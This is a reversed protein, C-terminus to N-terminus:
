GRGARCRTASGPSSASPTIARTRKAREIAEDLTLEGRLHGILWARWARAHRSARPRPQASALARSRKSHAAALMADFRGRHPRAPRATPRPFRALAVGALPGPRAPGSLSALPRGTAEFVELARLIRQRDHRLDRPPRPTAAALEAHLEPTARGEAPRASRRGVADTRAPHEVPGGDARPFLAGHRRHLDPPTRSAKSRALVDAARGACRGVSYNEAGDVHGYLRHPALAEEDARGRRSSACIGTSRCPIPTSSPGASDRALAKRAGVQREGDSRRHPRARTEAM